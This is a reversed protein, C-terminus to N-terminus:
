GRLNGQIQRINDRGRNKAKKKEKGMNKVGGKTM